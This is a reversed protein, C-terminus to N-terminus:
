GTRDLLSNRGIIKIHFGFSMRYVIPQKPTTFWHDPGVYPSAFSLPPPTMNMLRDNPTVSCAVREERRIQCSAPVRIEGGGVCVCVCERCAFLGPDSHHVCGPSIIHSMLGHLMSVLGHLMSMMGHFMSLLGHVYCQCWTMYCQHWARYVHMYTYHIYPHIPPHIYPHIYLPISPHLSDIFSVM